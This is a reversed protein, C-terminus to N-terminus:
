YLLLLLFLLVLLLLMWYPLLFRYKTFWEMINKFCKLWNNPLSILWNATIRRTKLSIRLRRRILIIIRRLFFCNKWDCHRGFIFMFIKFIDVIFCAYNSLSEVFFVHERFQKPIEWSRFNVLRFFQNM